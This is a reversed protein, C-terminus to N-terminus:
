PAAAIRHVRLSVVDDEDTARLVVRDDGFAIPSAAGPASLRGVVAGDLRFATATWATDSPALADVVWLTRNPTVFFRGYDPLSDAFPTARVLRKSEEPDVLREGSTRELPKLRAAIYADQMEKTVPRRARDVELRSVIRGEPNRLDIRYGETGSTAVLTDWVAVHSRRSFGLVVASEGRRGRYRTEQMALELDPLSAIERITTNAPDLLLVPAPPRVIADREGRQVLGGGYMVIRGDRLAGATQMFPRGLGDMPRSAVFGEDPLVWNFRRNGTDPIFLTDGGLLILGDPSMIEGPGGGTRGLSREGEGDAAFILLRNGIASLTAFRGDSLLVVDSVYTLDFAAEGEAGGLVAVPEPDITLRPARDLAGAEHKMARVGDVMRVTASVVSGAGTGTGVATEAAPRDAACGAAAVVCALLAVAAGLRDRVGDPRATMSM